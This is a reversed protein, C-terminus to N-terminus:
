RRTTVAISVNSGLPVVRGAAPTTSSSPGFGCSAYKPCPKRVVEVSLGAELLTDRLQELSPHFVYPVAVKDDPLVMLSERIARIQELANGEDQPITVSFWADLDPVGFVQRCSEGQGPSCTAKTAVVEHGGVEGDPKVAADAPMRADPRVSTIAVSSVLRSPGICDQPWPFYTTDRVPSNCSADNEAWSAPVAVAARGIGALRTDGGPNPGAVTGGSEAGDLLQAGAVGGAVVLAAAVAVGGIRARRRRRRVHGEVLLDGVPLHDVPIEDWLRDLASPTQEPM